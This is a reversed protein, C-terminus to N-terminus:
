WPRELELLLAQVAITKAKTGHLLVEVLTAQMFHPQVVLVFLQHILM